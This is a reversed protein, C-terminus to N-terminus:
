RFIQSWKPALDKKLHQGLYEEGEISGWSENGHEYCSVVSCGGMDQPLQILNVGERGM